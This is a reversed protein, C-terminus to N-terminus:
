TVPKVTTTVTYTGPLIEAFDTVIVFNLTEKPQLIFSTDEPIVTGIRLDVYTNADSWDLGIPYVYSSGDGVDIAGGVKLTDGPSLGITALPIKWETIRQGSSYITASKLDSPLNEQADNPFWRTAWGDSSTGSNVKPNWPLMHHGGDEVSLASTEFILDYPFGWSGGDTPNVNISIQDNGVEFEYDTRADNSDVLDFLVYLYDTTALVKVTGMNDVVDISVAEDWEGDSVVGDIVMGSTDPAKWYTTTVGNSNMGNGSPDTASHSTVLKVTAPVEAQNRLTHASVITSAGVIDGSYTIPTWYDKGDLLVSQKVVVTGTITGYYNLLAAGAIGTTLLMLVVAIVPISKGFANIKKDKLKV